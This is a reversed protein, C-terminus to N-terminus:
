QYAINIVGADFTPAGGSAIRVRDLTSSLAKAGSVFSAQGGNSLSVGGTACWTNTSADALTLIVSGHFISADAYGNGIGFGTTVVLGSGGIIDPATGLYGTDEIGGSDGIQILPFVSGSFSVGVFNITIQRVWSPIGTFDVTTGSTTTQPTGLVIDSVTDARQYNLCRWDGTAYEVFEAEDGAATTINAGGPLILDTAHHTLTLAADFHLKVVTGAGKTAISTITTTGTVDFYNGDDGLTLATASAVDAGKAWKVTASFTNVGSFTNAGALGAAGLATRAASASTAGTGGAVIPRAVNMDAALDELPTNHQTALITEGTVAEYGAPLAYM